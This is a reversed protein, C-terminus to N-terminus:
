DTGGARIPEDLELMLDEIVNGATRLGSLFTAEEEPTLLDQELLMYYGYAKNIHRIMRRLAKDDNM